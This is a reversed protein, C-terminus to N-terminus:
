RGKGTPGPPAGASRAERGGALPRNDTAPLAGDRQNRVCDSGPDAWRPSGPPPAAITRTPPGLHLQGAAPFVRASGPTLCSARGQRRSGATQPASSAPLGSSDGLGQGGRRSHEFILILYGWVAELWDM